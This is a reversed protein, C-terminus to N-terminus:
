IKNADEDDSDVIEITNADDDDSGVIEAKDADEDDNDYNAECIPLMDSNDEHDDDDDMRTCSILAPTKPYQAVNQLVQLVLKYM